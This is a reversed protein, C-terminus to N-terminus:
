HGKHWVDLKKGLILERVAARIYLFLNLYPLILFPLLGKVADKMLGYRYAAYLSPLWVFIANVGLAFGLAVLVDGSVAYFYLPLWLASMFFWLLYVYVMVAMSRKHPFLRFRRVKLNQMFGRYWRDLQRMYVGATQPEVPYCVAQPAFYVRGGKDQIEWTLDMDEALTRENFGGFRRVTDTKFISFCGSAVLVLGHHNQAPKMITQAYLYEVLRGREFFTRRVQPFVAGCVVECSPDNFSRMAEYLADPALMTDADVTVFLETQVHEIAFNQAQSKTGKNEPTRLVTVGFARAVDGTGDTSCDDVVIIEALTYTQEQLSRITAGICSAENYAPVIATVPVQPPDATLERPRLGLWWRWSLLKSKLM